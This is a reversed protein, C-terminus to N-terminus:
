GVREWTKGPYAVSVSWSAAGRCRKTSCDDPIVPDFKITDGGIIKFHFTTNGIVFTRDDVIEYSGDDVQEGNWDLSGFTAFETFFHSHERPVAGECPDNPNAIQDANRVGPIFGNGAVGELVFEDFGAEEQATVFEQCTTVRRWEGVLPSVEASPSTFIPDESGTPTSTSGNSGCAATAVAVAIMVGVWRRLPLEVEQLRRQGGCGAGTGREECPGCEPFMGSCEHM